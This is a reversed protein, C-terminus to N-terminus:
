WVAKMVHTPSSSSDARRPWQPRNRNRRRQWCRTPRRHRGPGRSLCQPGHRPLQRGHGRLRRHRPEGASPPAAKSITEAVGAAVAWFVSAANILQSIATASWGAQGFLVLSPYYAAEAVGIKANAAAM